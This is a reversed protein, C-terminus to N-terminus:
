GHLQPRIEDLLDRCGQEVMDLVNDFGDPGGYYPDPVDADALLPRVKPADTPPAMRRLERAQARDMAVVLDLERFWGAEFQRARHRSGDYGRATLVELSRRDAREGVHWDGLGASSVQVVEGLREAELLSRM